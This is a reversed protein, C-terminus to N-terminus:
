SVCFFIDVTCLDARSVSSLSQIGTSKLPILPKPLWTQQMLALFWTREVLAKSQYVSLAVCENNIDSYFVCPQYEQQSNQSYHQITLIFHM